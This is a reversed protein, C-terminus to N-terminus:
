VRRDGSLLDALRQHTIGFLAQLDAAKRFLRNQDVAVPNRSASILLNKKTHEMAIFEQISASYGSAELYMCRLADTITEAMRDVQIGHRFLPIIQDPPKLQPRLEKHCCPALFILQAKAALGRFIADDTATDC